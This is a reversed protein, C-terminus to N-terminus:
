FQNETELVVVTFQTWDLLLEILVKGLGSSVLTEPISESTSGLVSELVRVDELGELVQSFNAIM